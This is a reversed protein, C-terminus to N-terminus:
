PSRILVSASYWLDAQGTSDWSGGPAWSAWLNLTSGGPIGAARVMGKADSEESKLSDGFWVVDDTGSYTLIRPARGEWWLWREVPPSADTPATRPNPVSETTNGVTTVLGFVQLNQSATLLNATNSVFGYFGWGFRIRVLTEGSALSAILNNNAAWPNGSSVSRVWTFSTM